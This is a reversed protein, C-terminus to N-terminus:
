FFLSIPFKRRPSVAENIAQNKPNKRGPSVTNAPIDKAILERTKTASKQCTKKSQLHRRGHHLRVVGNQGGVGRQLVRVAGEHHVILGDVVNAPAIEVNFPGGVGVQIAQDALDDRGDGRRQAKVAGEVHVEGFELGVEYAEEREISRNENKWFIRLTKVLERFFLGELLFPLCDQNSKQIFNRLFIFFFSWLSIEKSFSPFLKKKLFRFVNKLCEFFHFFFEM